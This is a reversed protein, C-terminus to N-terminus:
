HVMTNIDYAAAAAMDIAQETAVKRFIGILRFAHNLCQFTAVLTTGFWKMVLMVNAAVASLLSNEIYWGAKVAGDTGNEIFLFGCRGTLLFLL